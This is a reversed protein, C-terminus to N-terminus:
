MPCARTMWSSNVSLFLPLCEQLVGLVNGASSRVLGVGLAHKGGVTALPADFVTTMLNDIPVIVFVATPYSGAMARFIDRAQAAEGNADDFGFIYATDRLFHSLEHEFYAQDRVIQGHSFVRAITGEM